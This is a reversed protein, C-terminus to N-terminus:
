LGNTLRKALFILFASVVVVATGSVDGLIWRLISTQSELADEVRTVRVTLPDHGNGDIVVRMLKKVDDEIRLFRTELTESLNTM